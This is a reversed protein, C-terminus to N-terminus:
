GDTNRRNSDIILAQQMAKEFFRWPLYKDDVINEYSRRCHGPGDFPKVAVNIAIELYRYVPIHDLRYCRSSLTEHPSGALISNALLDLAYAVYFAWTNIRSVIGIRKVSM